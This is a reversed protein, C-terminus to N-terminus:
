RDIAGLASVCRDRDFPQGSSAFGAAAAELHARGGARDGTALCRHGRVEELGAYWAPLRMVVDALFTCAQEYAAMREEDGARAVAIAAPHALTIRCGPCTELPGQVLEEAEIVAELGAQPDTALAIRTGYIRDLLHFGVDSDRAVALAEDLHRTAAARDGRFAAAEALRQLSLAEGVPAGMDAHRRCAATLDDVAADLRGSLLEAEGRLTLAFAVGRAAGLRTAEAAFSDAFAIVDDYPRAGYLLRQNICLQGDFVTVALAPLASTDRLDTRLSTRLEGRAHAAAAHAWSAVVVASSDGSSVALQRAEASLATGMEPGAAGLVAAGAWTLAQAVRAELTRPRADGLRVLAGHPDGGKLQALAWLSRLDDVESPSAVRTAAEYAELARRDGMADLAQARRRLADPHGPDHALVSDLHAVAAAYGGARIADTAARLSWDVAEDPRGGALWHRAVSGPPAGLAELRRAADRHVSARRHAPLDDALARRVLDHSFTYTGREIVLVGADLAVDLLQAAEDETGPLLATVAHLDLPGDVLALRRLRDVSEDGLDVFRGTIAARRAADLGTAPDWWAGRALELVFFPNGGSGDVLAAMRVDDAEFGVSGALTAADSPALPGLDLEVPPTIASARALARAAGDAIGDPRHSLVLVLPAGRRDGLRALVALSSEDALHADDVAILVGDDGAVTAVLRQVAGIVQHRTVPTPLPDAPLVAPTLVALVSRAHAPLEEGVDRDSVVLQEVLDALVAYADVAGSARVAAVHRGRGAARTCMESCLASKGMGAAGRVVVLVPEDGAGALVGDVTALEDARGVFTRRSGVVGAVCEDYLAETAREPALGLEHVLRSRLGSYLAIARHRRGADLAARMAERVAAEDYPDSAVLAEWDGMLRLLAAHREHLRRRAAETWPEYRADPLLDGRYLAAAARARDRDAERVAVDAAHEFAQVDSTVAAGPFLSVADQRLQVAEPAGLARRAFHAAKRLNAGGATLDLTPWLADIAQDRLLQHGPTLALLQVLQLARRSPWVPSCAAGDVELSFEGLMRIHVSGVPM